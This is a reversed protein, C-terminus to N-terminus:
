DGRPREVRLASLAVRGHAVKVGEGRLRRAQERFASSNPPFVIKGGAGVVRHWPLHLGKPTHKLAYGTQRARGPLGAARAVDGYTSVRGPPIQAVVDWIAQIAPNEELSHSSRRASTRGYPLLLADVNKKRRRKARAARPATM